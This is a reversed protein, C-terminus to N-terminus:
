SAIKEMRKEEALEFVVDFFRKLGESRNACCELTERKLQEYDEQDLEVLGPITESCIRHLLEDSM